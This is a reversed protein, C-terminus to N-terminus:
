IRISLSKKVLIKLYLVSLLFSAATAYAAGHMGFYPILLANLIINSLIVSGKLLTHLGPYGAQVLVMNFPLYGSCLILGVMLIAFPGWGAKFASDSTFLNVFFPYTFIAIVGLLLMAIYFLKIGRMITEKLKDMKNQTIFRTLLPNLNNRVVVSLQAFGEVILSAMSYIGVTKDSAFYGLMLVDVRSNLESVTGGLFGRVGFKIHRRGWGDWKSVAIPSYFKLTFILLFILLVIEAGSIIVPLANGPVHIVVCAILLLVMLIYRMAQALAFIKMERFGNLVSILVKNLAFCWLGPLVYLLGTSVDPSKLINGTWKSITFAVVIILAACISTIVIASTIIANCKSQGHSFESIHKLVSFHIGFVAFQSFLIYLAFVQNFVGLTGAGYFRGVIINLFIGSVGLVGFSLFNWSVDRGFKNSIPLSNFWNKL